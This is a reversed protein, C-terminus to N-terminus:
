AQIGAYIKAAGHGVEPEILVGLETDESGPAPWSIADVRITIEEMLNGYLHAIQEDEKTPVPMIFDSLHAGRDYNL